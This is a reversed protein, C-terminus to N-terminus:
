CRYVCGCASVIMEAGSPLRAYGWEFLLGPVSEEQPEALSRPVQARRFLAKTSPGIALADTSVDVAKKFKEQKLYCAAINLKTSRRRDSENKWRFRCCRENARTRRKRRRGKCYLTSRIESRRFLFGRFVSLFVRFGM